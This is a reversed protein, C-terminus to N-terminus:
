RSLFLVWPLSIACLITSLVISASALHDDGGMQKAMIFAVTAIPCASLVLAIRLNVGSIGFFPALVFVLTPLLFTKLVAATLIGSFKGSFKAHTFSGGICLLAIPIAAGGLAELARDLFLPLRTHSFALPFGAMAALILPNTFISRLAARWSNKAPQGVNFLLVALINFFAMLFGLVIVTTALAQQRGPMGEFAYVLVPLGIFAVNGRFALQSLTARSSHPLGVLSAGMWGIGAIVVTATIILALLWFTQTGPNEAHAVSRFLLAPLAIYFVLKNLDAMFGHGLFRLRALVGGLLVLLLIPAIIEIM